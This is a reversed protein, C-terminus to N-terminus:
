KTTKLPSASKMFYYFSATATLATAKTKSKASRMVPINKWGFAM